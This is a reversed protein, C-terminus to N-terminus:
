KTSKSAAAPKRLRQDRHLSLAPGNYKGGKHVQSCCCAFLLLHPHAYLQALFLSVENKHVERLRVKFFNVMKHAMISPTEGSSFHTVHSCVKALFTLLEDMSLGYLDGDYSKSEEKKMMACMNVDHFLANLTAANCMDPAIQACTHDITTHSFSDVPLSLFLSSSPPSLPPYMIM